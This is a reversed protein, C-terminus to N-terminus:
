KGRQAAAIAAVENKDLGTDRAADAAARDAAKKKLLALEEAGRGNGELLDDLLDIPIELYDKFPLFRSYERLGFTHGVNKASWLHFLDRRQHNYRIQANDSESVHVWGRMIM